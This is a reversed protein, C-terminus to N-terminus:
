WKEIVSILISNIWHNIPFFSSFILFLQVKFFNDENNKEINQSKRLNTILLWTIAVIFTSIFFSPLWIWESLFEKVRSNEYSVYFVSVILILVPICGVLFKRILSKQEYPTNM